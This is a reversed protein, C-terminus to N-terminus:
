RTMRGTHTTSSCKLWNAPLTNLRISTISSSPRVRAARRSVNSGFSMEPSSRMSSASFNMPLATYHGLDIHRLSLRVSQYRHLLMAYGLLVAIKRHATLRYCQRKLRRISAFMKQEIQTTPADVQELHLHLVATSLDDYEHAEVKTPSRM